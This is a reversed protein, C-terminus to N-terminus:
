IVDNNNLKVNHFPQTDFHNFTSHSGKLRCLSGVRRKQKM